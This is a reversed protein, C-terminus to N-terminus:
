RIKKVLSQVEGMMFKLRGHLDELESINSNLQELVDRPFVQESLPSSPRSQPLPLAGSAHLPEFSNRAAVAVTKESMEQLALKM